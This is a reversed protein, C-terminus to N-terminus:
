LFHVRKLIKCTGIKTQIKRIYKEDVDSRTPLMSFEIDHGISKFNTVNYQLLM